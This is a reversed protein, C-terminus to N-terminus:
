QQPQRITRIVNSPIAMRTRGPERAMIVSKRLTVLNDGGRRQLLLYNPNFFRRLLPVYLYSEGRRSLRLCQITLREFTETMGIGLIQAVSFAHDYSGEQAYKSVIQQGTLLQEIVMTLKVM